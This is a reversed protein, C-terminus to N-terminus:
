VGVLTLIIGLLYVGAAPVLLVLPLRLSRKAILAHKKARWYTAIVILGLLGGLISGSFGIVDIFDRAGALFAVLPVAIVSLWAWVYRIRYDYVLTNISSLGIMIFSTSVAFLGVVSGITLAWSGLARGLGIMSEETTHEGTVSLVVASFALYIVTVILMGIMLSSHLHHKQRGLIQAMEPIASLGSFAFLVVGFPLFWNEPHVTQLAEIDIQPSAGVILAIIAILFVITFLSELRSVFGLGGVLIISTFIYFIMQYMFVDGGFVGHLLTNLFKGGIIVYAIMAGWSSGFLIFTAIHSWTPGLYRDVLGTLRSHGPTHMVLDAYAWLLIFNIGAVFIIHGLGIAFGSQSFVYPLGFIGVGIVVGMLAQISRVFESRKAEM